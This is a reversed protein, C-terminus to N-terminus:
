NISIKVAGILPLLVLNIKSSSFNELIIFNHSVSTAFNKAHRGTCSDFYKSTKCTVIVSVFAFYRAFDQGTHLIMLAARVINM